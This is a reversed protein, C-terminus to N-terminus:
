LDTSYIEARNDIMGTLNVARLTLLGSLIAIKGRRLDVIETLYLNFAIM